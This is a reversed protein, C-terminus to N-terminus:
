SHIFHNFLKRANSSEQAEELSFTGAIRIGHHLASQIAVLTM